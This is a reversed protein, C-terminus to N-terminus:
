DRGTRWRVKPKARVAQGVESIAAPADLYVCAVARPNHAAWNLAFLAGRSFGELVCRNSLSYDNLLHAYFRDMHRMAIPAGYMNQVDIVSRLIRGKLLALDLTPFAGFFETRWIWPNSHLPSDPRVLVCARGDLEFKQGRYGEWTASQDVRM